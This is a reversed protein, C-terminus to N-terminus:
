SQLVCFLKWVRITLAANCDKAFTAQHRAEFATRTAQRFRGKLHAPCNQLVNFRTHYVADVDIDDLMQWPTPSSPVVPPATQTCVGDDVAFVQNSPEPPLGRQCAQLTIQVCASELATCRVDRTVAGHLIREQARACFHAGWRPQVFGQNHIWESLDERSQIGWSSMAERLADWGAFVADEAPM